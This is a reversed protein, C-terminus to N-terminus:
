AACPQSGHGGAKDALWCSSCSPICVISVCRQGMEVHTTGAHEHQQLLQFSAVGAVATFTLPRVYSQQPTCGQGSHPTTHM